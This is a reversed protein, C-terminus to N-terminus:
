RTVRARYAFTQNLGRPQGSCSWKTSRDCTYRTDGNTLTLEVRKVATGRFPVRLNGKGDPGLTMWHRQVGGQRFVTVQAYPSRVADPADVVVNLKWGAGGLGAKPVFAVTQNSLHKRRTSQWAVNRKARTLQWKAALPSKKYFRGEEYSAGPRRNATGFEALARGLDDGRDALVKAAAQMSYDDPADVRGAREWLNRILIPLGTGATEPHRETLFRWWIWNGYWHDPLDLATQPKRLASGGLYNRNDDVGDFLEDEVWTATTELLWSDETADYAYQVAHFFEHAGTVRLNGMPNNYPYEQRSYDNDLVCYSPASGNGLLAEPACYGYLGLPGIDVLYVDFKDNGGRSGDSPPRKYGGQTVVREWVREMVKRTKEVQDPVTDGNADKAPPADRTKRAYHICFNKTKSPKEACDSTPDARPGYSANFFEGPETPRALYARATRQDAPSLEDLGLRLERLLLTLDRDGAGGGGRRDPGAGKGFAREVAALAQEPTPAEGTLVPHPPPAPQDRDDALASATPVLTLVLGAAALVALRSPHV